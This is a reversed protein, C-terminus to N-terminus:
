EGVTKIGVNRAVLTQSGTGITKIVGTRDGADIQVNTVLTRKGSKSFNYAGGSRGLSDPEQRPGSLRPHRKKQKASPHSARSAAARGRFLNRGRAKWRTVRTMASRSTRRGTSRKARFEHM